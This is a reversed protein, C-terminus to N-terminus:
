DKKKESVKENVNEKLSDVGRFVRRPAPSNSLFDRYYAQGNKKDNKFDEDMNIKENNKLKNYVVDNSRIEDYNNENM